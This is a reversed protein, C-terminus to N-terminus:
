SQKKIKILANIEGSINISQKLDNSSNLAIGESKCFDIPSTSGKFNEIISVAQFQANDLLRMKKSSQSATVFLQLVFVSFVALIAVSLVIELVGFSKSQYKFRM